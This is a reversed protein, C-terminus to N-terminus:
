SKIKCYKIECGQIYWLSLKLEGSAYNYKGYINCKDLRNWMALLCYIEARVEVYAPRTAYKIQMALLHLDASQCQM